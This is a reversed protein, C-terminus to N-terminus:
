QVSILEIDFVLDAKAPISPPSGAEGYAKTYPIILRRKGGVKMGPIGEQWGQILNSLPSTFPQGTDLSSQFITGDAVLAGTYHATVTAGAQVADGTGEILDITQLATVPETAPAFDALATGQLMNEGTQATTQDSESTNSNIADQIAQDTSDEQTSQWIIVATFAVSTILFVAALVLSGFRRFFEM